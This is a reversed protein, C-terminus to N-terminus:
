AEQHKSYGGPAKAWTRKKNIALKREAEARLDIGRNKTIAIFLLFVDAAEEGNSLDAMYEKLEELFHMVRGYETGGGFTAQQWEYIEEVLQDLSKSERQTVFGAKRM